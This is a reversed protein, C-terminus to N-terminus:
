VTGDTWIFNQHPIHIQGSTVNLKKRYNRFTSCLTEQFVKEIFLAREFDILVLTKGDFRMNAPKVDGHVIGISHLDALASFLQFSALRISEIGYNCEANDSNHEQTRRFLDVCRLYPFIQFFICHFFYSNTNRVLCVFSKGASRFMYGSDLLQVFHVNNPLNEHIFKLKDIEANGSKVDSIKVVVRRNQKVDLTYYIDNNGNYIRSILLYQGFLFVGSM